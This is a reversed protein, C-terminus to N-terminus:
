SRKSSSFRKSTRKISSDGEKSKSDRILLGTTKIGNNLKDLLQEILLGSGESLHKGQLLVSCTQLLLMQNDLVTALHDTNVDVAKLALLANFNAELVKAVIINEQVNRSADAMARGKQLANIQALKSNVENNGKLNDPTINFNLRNVDGKGGVSQM